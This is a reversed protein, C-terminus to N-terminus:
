TDVAMTPGQLGLAYAIRGAAFNLCNGTLHYADLPANREVIRLYDSNTIGVFVGTQSGSLAGPVVGAHELAEWTVELLLRQQPDTRAAEPASIGFFSADFKDVDDIFGGLQTYMKGAADPDPDYYTDRNWRDGPVERIPDIGDRLLAWFSESD